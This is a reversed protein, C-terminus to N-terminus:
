HGRKQQEEIRLKEIMDRLRDPVPEDVVPQFSARLADGIASHLMWHSPKTAIQSVFEEAAFMQPKAWKGM